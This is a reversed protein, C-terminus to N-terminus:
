VWWGSFDVVLTAAGSSFLCSGGDETLETIAGNASAGLDGASVAATLPRNGCSWATVFGPATHDVVTIVMSAAIPHAGDPAAPIKFGITSGAARTKGLRTDLVREPDAPVFSLGQEAFYGTLDIVLDTTTPSYVCFSENSDLAVIANNGRVVQGDFNLSATEPRKASCPYATIFGPGSAGVATLNVAAATSGDPVIGALSIRTTKNAVLLDDLGVGNRSDVVRIPASVNLGSNGAPGIWATADIVIDTDVLSFVCVDGSKDLKAIMSNGITHGKGFVVSATRDAKAVNLCPTIQLYGTASPDVAVINLVASTATASIAPHDSVAVRTTSGAAARRAGGTGFRTDLLRAPAIPTLLDGEPVDRRLALPGITTTEPVTTTTSTPASGDHQQGHVALVFEGISGYATFGTSPTLWDRSTVRVTYTGQTVDANLTTSWERPRPPTVAALLTPGDFLEASAFLNSNATTPDITISLPGAGVTVSFETSTKGAAISGIVSDNHDLAVVGGADRAGLRSFLIALDDQTQTAGPYEGKSWQTQSMNYGTGMIPAWGTGTADTHGQYYDLSGVGDHYLGLTHGAEHSAGEAVYKWYGGALNDSFVFAPTRENTLADPWRMSNIFAVGGSGGYWDDTPSIVIRIGYREDTANDRELDDLSPEETTVDVNFPAFDEAVMEWIKVIYNETNAPDSPQYPASTFTSPRPSQNWPTGTTTHGTFDLYIILDALPNSHLQYAQAAPPSKQLSDATIGSTSATEAPENQADLVDHPPHPGYTGPETVLLGDNTVEITDDLAVEVPIDVVTGSPAVVKVLKGNGREFNAGNDLDVQAPPKSSNTDTDDAFAPLPALLLAAGVVCILM